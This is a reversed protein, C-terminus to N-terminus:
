TEKIGYMKARAKLREEIVKDQGQFNGVSLGKRVIKDILSRRIDQRMRHRKDKVAQQSRRYEEPADRKRMDVGLHPLRTEPKVWSMVTRGVGYSRDQGPETQKYGSTRWVQAAGVHAMGGKSLVRHRLMQQSQRQTWGTERNGSTPRGAGTPHRAPPQGKYERSITGRSAGAGRVRVPTIPSPILQLAIRAKHKVKAFQRQRQQTFDTRMKGKLTRSAAGEEAAIERRQQM